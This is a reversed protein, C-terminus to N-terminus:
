NKQIKALANKLSAIVEAKRSVDLDISLSFGEYNDKLKTVGKENKERKDIVQYTRVKHALGKVKIEEREECTISNKILSYPKMLYWYKDLQHM